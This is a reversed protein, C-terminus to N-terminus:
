QPRQAAYAHNWPLAGTGSETMVVVRQDAAILDALTPWPAGQAHAYVRALMGSAEVEAALRAETVHDEFVIAIVEDPHADLWANMRGLGDRLREAGLACASHCLTVTGQLVPDDGNYEYADLMFGRVGDDLQRVLGHTQNPVVWGEDTNNFANHATALAVQDFPRACLATRGNCTAQPTTDGLTDAPPTEPTTACACTLLLSALRVVSRVVPGKTHRPPASPM